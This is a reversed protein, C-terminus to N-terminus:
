LGVAMSKVRPDNLISDVIQTGAARAASASAGPLTVTISGPNFNLTVAGGAKSHAAPSYLADKLIANRVTDASAEPLVMEGRHIDATQDQPVSWVGTKYGVYPRHNKVAIVGPVNDLSGHYREVAYRYAAIVNDVPNWINGHGPLAHDKFTPAITQMLGESPHGAMANSDDLNISWADGASEGTAIIKLDAANSAPKGMIALASAIWSDVTGPPKNGTPVQYTHGFRDRVSKYKGPALNANGLPDVVTTNSAANQAQVPPAYKGSLAANLADVESISGNPGVLSPVSAGTAANGGTAATNQGSADGAGGVVRRITPFEKPSYSRVRVKAGTHPAEVLKGGGICMTVHGPEPLMLDGPQESGPAVPSGIKMQEQSTRPISVGGARWAAQTLGSCDYEDPGTAGWRYDKGVQAVAFAVAKRAAGASAASAGVAPTVGSPSAGLATAATTSGSGLGYINSKFPNALPKPVLAAAAAATGTSQNKNADTFWEGLSYGLGWAGGVVGGLLTGEPGFMSGVLAGGAADSATDGGVRGWERGASSGPGAGSLHQTLMNGGYAAGIGLGALGARGALGKVGIGGLRSLLSGVAPAARSVGARLLGTGARMAVGSAAGQVARGALVGGLGGGGGGGTNGSDGGGTYGGGGGGGSAFGGLRGATYGGAFSGLAKTTGPFTSAWGSASGIASGLGTDNLFSTLAGNFSNLLSVSDQLSSNFDGYQDATRGTKTAQLDKIQQVTTGNVGLKTLQSQAGKDGRSAKDLLDSLQGPNAGNQLATNYQQLYGTLMQQTGPAWGSQAGLYSLNANLSGGPGLAAALTKSSVSSRGQFTQSFVNQALTLPDARVGGAGIPTAYGLGLAAMTSRPTYVSALNQAVQTQTMYPNAYGLKYMGSQATFWAKNASGDKNMMTTGSYYNLIGAASAADAPSAATVNLNTNSTGYIASVARQATAAYGGPGLGSNLIGQYAARDMTLITPTTRQAYGVLKNFGGTVAMGAGQAFTARAGSVGGGQGGGGGEDGGGGGAGGGARANGVRTGLNYFTSGMTHRPQGSPARSAYSGGTAQSAPANQGSGTSRLTGLTTAAARFAATLGGVAQDARGVANDFQDVSRQANGAGLVSAAVSPEQTDPDPTLHPGQIPQESM